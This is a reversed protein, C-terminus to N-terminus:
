LGTLACLLRLRPVPPEGRVKVGLEASFLEMLEHLPTQPARSHLVRLTRVYEPPILYDLAGLHQGM